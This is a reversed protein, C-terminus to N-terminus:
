RLCSRRTNSSCDSPGNIYWFINISPSRAIDLFLRTFGSGFTFTGNSDMKAYLVNGLRSYDKENGTEKKEDEKDDISEDSSPISSEENNMGEDTSLISLELNQIEKPFGGSATQWEYLQRYQEPHGYELVM